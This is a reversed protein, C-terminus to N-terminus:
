AADKMNAFIQDQLLNKVTNLAFIRAHVECTDTKSTLSFIGNPLLSMSSSLLALKIRM